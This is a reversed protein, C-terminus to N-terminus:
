LLDKLSQVTNELSLKIADLQSLICNSKFPCLNCDGKLTDCLQTGVQEEVNKINKITQKLTEM